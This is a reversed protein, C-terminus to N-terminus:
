HVAEDNAEENDSVIIPSLKAVAHHVNFLTGQIDEM